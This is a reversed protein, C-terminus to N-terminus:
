THHGQGVGSEPTHKLFQTLSDALSTMLLKPYPQALLTYFVGDSNRGSLIFHRKLTSSCFGNLGQCLRFQFDPVHWGLFTTPKKWQKGYQCYHVRQPKAGIKILEQMENTLWARSSAPNEITWSTNSLCCLKALEFTRRLLRNGRDIKLKDAASRHPFGYLFVADNRLPLPGGDYKRARSWSDCPMGFHVFSFTGSKIASALQNFVESKLIDGGNGWNIDFAHVIFGQRCLEKSLAACGAYVELAPKLGNHSVPIFIRYGDGKAITSIGRSVEQDESPNERITSRSQCPKRVEQPFQRCEMPREAQHRHHVEIKSTPGLFSRFPTTPVSGCLRSGTRDPDLSEELRQPAKHLRNRVAAHNPHGKGTDGFGQGLLAVGRQRPPHVRRDPWDKVHVDGRIHKPEPGLQHGSQYKEGLGAEAAEPNRQTQWINHVYHPRMTCGGKRGDGLADNGGSQGPALSSSYANTGPGPQALGELSAPKEQSIGQDCQQKGGPNSCLVQIGRLHGYRGHVRSESFDSTIPRSSLPFHGEIGTTQLLQPIGGRPPLLRSSNSPVGCLKRVYDAWPIKADSSCRRLDNGEEEAKGPLGKRSPSSPTSSNASQPCWPDRPSRSGEPLPHHSSSRQLTRSIAASDKSYLSKRLVEQVQKKSAPAGKSKEEWQRSPGDARNWESPIWRHHFACGTVVSYAAARRCCFLLPVAKARGRDFALVMGLNDGLHLHRKNFNAVSRAVHRISQVTARGELITIHEKHHMQSAFQLKWETSNAIEFPVDQFDENLQFPDFLSKWPVATEVDSFPDLKRVADRAKLAAGNGKYRWLERTKGIQQVCKSDSKLTCTATGSLCADSATIESSWPKALDSECIWLLEAAWECERAATKWLRCQKHYCVDKFSYVSRFISLFERKLMFFHICHGVIREIAKGSVKPRTSLWRLAAIVKDRKEPRPHIRQNKGDIIFGLAKAYDSADEEEHVRFGVQRLRKVALDKIRQVDEKCTGIVNLNDAYPVIVTTGSSLDPAPRGDALVQEHALDAGVMVQHQHIRQAFFMAWSWGMPVVRMQPYVTEVGKWDALEPIEDILLEPRIPPLCFYDSLFDPMGISYFYDKIDSQAVYVTQNKEMTLQGFSYGAAMAIDPPPLFYQNASRCDLVLRLRGDKKAVFFPTIDAKRKNSFKIMGRAWLDHVFRHYMKPDSKLIEDMYPRIRQHAAAEPVFLRGQPDLLFDRGADDLLDRADFVQAGCEPLSVLQPNFSRVTSRAEEELNYSSLGLHLLEHVAERQQVPAACRPSQAVSQFLLDHAAHQAKTLKGDFMKNDVGAMANVARIIGNVKQANDLRRVFRRKAGVSEHHPSCSKLGM